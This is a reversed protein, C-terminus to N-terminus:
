SIPGKVATHASPAQVEGYKCVDAIVNRLASAAALRHEGGEGEGGGMWGERDGPLCVLSKQPRCVARKVSPFQWRYNKSM